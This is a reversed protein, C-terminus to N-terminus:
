LSPVLEIVWILQADDRMPVGQVRMLVGDITAQDGEKPSDLDAIQVSIVMSATRARAVGFSVDVDPASVLVRITKPTSELPGIWVADVAMNRDAFITRMATSFANAM